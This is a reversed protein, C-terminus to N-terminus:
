DESKPLARYAIFYNGSNKEQFQKFLQPAEFTMRGTEGRIELKTIPFHRYGDRFFLSDGGTLIRAAERPPIRLKVIGTRPDFAYQEPRVPVWDERTVNREWTILAVTAPLLEEALSETQGPSTFINKAMIAYEVEIAQDSENVLVFTVRYSCASHLFVLVLLLATAVIRRM